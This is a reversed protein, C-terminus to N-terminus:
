DQFLSRLREKQQEKTRHNIQDQDSIIDRLLAVVENYNELELMHNLVEKMEVLIQDSQAIATKLEPAMAAPDEIKGEVLKLQEALKPMRQLAIEHLPKAIQDGLRNKLDPNDIRNNTLEKGMDDFSEAVGTVEDASQVVNQLSGAVRLRTRALMRDTSSANPATQSDNRDFAKTASTGSSPAAAGDAKEDSGVRSLLNRTDTLKEYISEFRQRLTLERRELLALLDAPTVVDLVFQQSSGARPGKALNFQDSAKLALTLRQKPKLELARKGTAPDLARTDFSDITDLAPRDHPQRALPRKAVASSDVQYEFWASDLAYDDTIKGVFPLVADPTIATSIGSLRVAVQPVEDKVASLSIRYPERTSVGDSDTISVLLVDDATLTGYQYTLQQQPHNAFALTTQHKNNATHIQAATLPKTSKAHLVLRSGEPIRMGGTVPLRRSSRHLYDPYACELEIAVLEPRDVVQLHLDRVRDDGGAVDFSMNGNVHKFEYRFLQYPEHNQNAEGVRVLTDRGRRGDALRYRIEVDNPVEYGATSAHVLLEFDDDQALKHTREGADNPPFGAVELHVRRPWPADTLELRQLWFSFVDRSLAAFVIISLSLATAAILSRILPRRNFVEGLDVNAIGASAAENTQAVLEAHFIATREPSSAVDVATILHDNLAPFRRELLVAASTDTIPTFLRRLLYRYCVYLLVGAIAILGIRRVAPSPEFTWDIALGLWFAVGLTAVVIALGEIWVYARIRRRVADLARRVAFPLERTTPQNFM